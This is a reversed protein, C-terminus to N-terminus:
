RKGLNVITTPALIRGPNTIDPKLNNAVPNEPEIGFSWITQNVALRRAFPGLKIVILALCKCPDNFTPRDWRDM